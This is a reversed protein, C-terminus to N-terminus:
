GSKQGLSVRVADHGAKLVLHQLIYVIQRISYFSYLECLSDTNEQFIEVNALLRIFIFQGFHIAFSAHGQSANFTCFFLRM